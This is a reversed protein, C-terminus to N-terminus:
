NDSRRITLEYARRDFRDVFFIRDFHSEFEHTRMRESFQFFSAPTDWDASVILWCNQCRQLYRPLCSEKARIVEQLETEFSSNVAGARGFHWHHMTPEPLRYIRIHTIVKPLRGDDNQELAIRQFHEPIRSRVIEVLQEALVNRQQKSLSPNPEFSILVDLPPLGLSEYKKQALNIVFEQEAHQRLGSENTLRTVDIGLVDDAVAFRFDPNEGDVDLPTGPPYSGLHQRVIDLCDNEHQKKNLM